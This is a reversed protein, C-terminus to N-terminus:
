DIRQRVRSSAPRREDSERLWSLADAPNYFAKMHQTSALAMAAVVVHWLPRDTVIAVADIDRRHARNWDIFLQRAGPSYDDM